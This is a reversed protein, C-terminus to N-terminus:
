VQVEMDKLSDLMSLLEHGINTSDNTMYQNWLYELPYNLKSLQEELRDFEEKFISPGNEILVLFEKKITTQYSNDIIEKPELRVLWSEYDEFEKLMKQLLNSM